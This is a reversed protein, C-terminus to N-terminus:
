YGTLIAEAAALDDPTNVNFFPDVEAVPVDVVAMAHRATWLDVKRIGEDAVASRLDDALRVPWLGFVPHRRGASAACAMDAGERAVAVALQEVLNEPVFPADGAFSAVWSCGPLHERAWELGTLVGALPGPQGPLSDAVVPLGFRAFRAPDGGANLILTDVQPVVREVIHALVPRGGLDRLGKDGGGMRRSAGGALLVGLIPGDLM